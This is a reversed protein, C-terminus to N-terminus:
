LDEERGLLRKCGDAVPAMMLRRPQFAPTLWIMKHGHLLGDSPGISDKRAMSSGVPLGVRAPLGHDRHSLKDFAIGLRHPGKNQAPGAGLVLVQSHCNRRARKLMEKLMM